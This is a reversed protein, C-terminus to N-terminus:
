HSSVGEVYVQQDAKLLLDIAVLVMQDQKQKFTFVSSEKWKKEAKLKTLYRVEINEGKKSACLAALVNAGFDFGQLKECTSFSMQAEKMKKFILGYNSILAPSYKEKIYSLTKADIESASLATKEVKVKPRMQSFLSASIAQADINANSKKELVNSSITLIKIEHESLDTNEGSAISGVFLSAISLIYLSLNKKM